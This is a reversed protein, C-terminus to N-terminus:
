AGGAAASDAGSDTAGTGADTNGSGANDTGANGSGSGDAAGAGATGNAGNETDDAQPLEVENIPRVAAGERLRPSWSVIVQDLAFLGSTIAATDDSYLGVTVDRRQAVGDVACFVYAQNDEYYVADYPVLLAGPQSSYTNAIVSASTGTMLQNRSGPVSVKVPFLGSYPSAAFAIETIAGNFTKGNGSVSVQEGVRLSDRVSQSVSFTVTMADQNSVTFAAYGPAAMGYRQVSVATVVGDIPSTLRYYELAERASQVGVGAANIQANLVAQTEDKLQTDTLVASQKALDLNQEYTRIAALYQQIANQYQDIGSECQAIATDIGSLGSSVTATSGSLNNYATSADNYASKLLAIGSDSVDAMTLGQSLLSQRITAAATPDIMELQMLSIEDTVGYTEMQSRMALATYYKNQAANMAREARGIGDSIQDSQDELDARQQKLDAIQDSLKNMSQEASDIQQYYNNIADQMQAISAETSMTQMDWSAGTTQQAAAVASNYGATASNLQMRANTDDIQALLQGAEVRDGVEVYVDTIEGSVMPIISVDEGSSVTGIFRGELTLAGQDPLAIEVAIEQEMPEAEQGCGSVLLVLGLLLGVCATKWGHIKM